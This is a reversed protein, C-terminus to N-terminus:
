PRGAPVTAPYTVDAAAPVVGGDATVLPHATGYLVTDGDYLHMSMPMTMPTGATGWPHMAPTTLYDQSTIRSRLVSM